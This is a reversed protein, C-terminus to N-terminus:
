PVAKRSPVCLGRSCAMMGSAQAIEMMGSWFAILGALGISIAVAQEAGKVIGETIVEIRGNLAAVAIGSAIMLFWLYNIM